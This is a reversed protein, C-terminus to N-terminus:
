IVLSPYKTKFFFIDVDKKTTLPMRSYFYSLSCTALGHCRRWLVLLHSLLSHFSSCTRSNICAMYLHLLFSHILFLIDLCKMFLACIHFPVRPFPRRAMVDMLPLSYTPSGISCPLAFGEHWIFTFYFLASRSCITLANWSSPVYIFQYMLSPTEKCTKMVDVLPLSFLNSVRYLLSSCFM